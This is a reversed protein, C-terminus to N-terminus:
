FALGDMLGIRILALVLVAILIPFYSIRCNRVRVQDKTSDHSKFTISEHSGFRFFLGALFFVVTFLVYLDMFNYRALEPLKLLIIVLLGIILPFLIQHLFFSGTDSSLLKPFYLNASVRVHKQAKIGLVVLFAVSSMAFILRLFFPIRYARIAAGIGFNFFSGIIINGLFWIIAILYVWLYLIKIGKSYKRQKSYLREFIMAVVLTFANGVFFVMITENRTWEKGTHTFGYYFLEVDFGLSKALIMSFINFSFVVLYYAILLYAVSNVVICTNFNKTNLSDAM